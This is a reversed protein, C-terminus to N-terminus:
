IGPAHLGLARTWAGAVAALGHERAVYERCRAALEDSAHRADWLATALEAMREPSGGAFEGVREREIVGDPDHELALAPIGHSWGELFVNPMGESVSTSVIAVSRQILPALDARTLAPRLELNPLTAAASRIQAALEAGFPSPDDVAVMRFRAQPLARALEVFAHPRKHSILRGIWLFTEPECAEAVPQEAISRILLPERSLRERCLRAQEETQVVVTDALRIGLRVSWAIWRKREWGGFDFDHLGASAFVFRRRLARAVLAVLLTHISAARQVLVGAPHARLLAYTGAYFALTRVLPLRTRPLRQEIVKVGDVQSLLAEGTAFVVIAVEHGRRGLERALLLVQLEAGGSSARPVAAVLPTATPMYFIVDSRAPAGVGVGRTAGGARSGACAM